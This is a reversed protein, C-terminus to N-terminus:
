RRDDNTLAELPCEGSKAGAFLRPLWSPLLPPTVPNVYSVAALPAGLPLCAKNGRESAYDYRGYEGHSKGHVVKGSIDETEDERNGQEQDEKYQEHHKREGIPRGEESKEESRELRKIKEVKRVLYSRDDEGTLIESTSSERRRRARERALGLSIWKQDYYGLPGIYSCRKLAFIAVTTAWTVFEEVGALAQQLLM